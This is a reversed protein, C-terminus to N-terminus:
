ILRTDKMTALDVFRAHKYEREAGRPGDATRTCLAIRISELSSPGAVGAPM